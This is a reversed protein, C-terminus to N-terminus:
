ETHEPERLEISNGDPAHLRSFKGNPYSKPDEIEIGAIRPQGIMADLVAVRFNVMWAQEQRGVYETDKKFPAFVTLGAEQQWPQQEYSTPVLSIGLHTEYWMALQEPNESRFFLAGIGLFKQMNHEEPPETSFAPGLTVGFLLAFSAFLLPKKM